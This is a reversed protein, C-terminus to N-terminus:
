TGALASAPDSPPQACPLAPVLTMIDLTFRLLEDPVRVDAHMAAHAMASAHDEAALASTSGCVLSVVSGDDFPRPAIAHFAFVYRM